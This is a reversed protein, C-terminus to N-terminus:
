TSHGVTRFNCFRFYTCQRWEPLLPLRLLIWSPVRAVPGNAGNVIITDGRYGSMIDMPGPGTPILAETATSMDTKCSLAALSRHWLRRPSGMREGSGDEVILM